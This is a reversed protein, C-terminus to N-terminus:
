FDFLTAQKGALGQGGGPIEDGPPAAAPAPAATPSAEHAADHAAPPPAPTTKFFSAPIPFALWPCYLAGNILSVVACVPDVDAGTLRLSHNAVQLLQRSSGAAPEHVLAARLDGGFGETALETMLECVNSHTLFFGQFRKSQGREEELLHGIHDYPATLLAAVDFHQYLWRATKDSVDPRADCVALGFAIWEILTNLAREGYGHERGLKEVLKRLRALTGDKAQPPTVFHLPPIPRDLIRGAALTEFLYVWRGHVGSAGSLLWVQFLMWGKYSYAPRLDGLLPVRGETKIFEFFAPDIIRPFWPANVLAEIQAVAEGAGTEAEAQAVPM